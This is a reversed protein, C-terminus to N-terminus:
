LLAPHTGSIKEEGSYTKSRRKERFGSWPVGSWGMHNKRGKSPRGLVKLERTNRWWQSAFPRTWGHRRWLPLCFGAPLGQACVATKCSPSPVGQTRQGVQWGLHILFSIKSTGLQSHLAASVPWYISFLTAPPSPLSSATTCASSNFSNESVTLQFILLLKPEFHGELLNM